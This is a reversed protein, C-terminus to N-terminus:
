PRVLFRVAAIVRPDFPAHDVAVFEARLVHRGPRAAITADLGTTMSVLSGDLYLHIHGQNPRLRFSSFPVVRGGKLQLQVPISAPHGHFVQNPYPSLVRLRATTSPRGLSPRAGLVLPLATALVLCGGTAVALGVGAVRRGVGTPHSFLWYAGYAGGMAAFFLGTAVFAAPGPPGLHGIM